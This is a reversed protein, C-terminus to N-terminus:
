FPSIQTDQRAAREGKFAHMDHKISVAKAVENTSIREARYEGTPDSFTIVAVCLVDTMM